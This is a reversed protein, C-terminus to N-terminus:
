WPDLLRRIERAPVGGVLTNARVDKAVVAGAAVVAGTGISVGALLVSGLGIWAGDGITVDRSYGEGARCERPGIAHSGTAITCRPGIAVREGIRISSEGSAILVTHHGIFSGDGIMVNPTVFRVSSVIKTGKGVTAGAKSVLYRKAAFARTAPFLRISNLLVRSWVARSATRLVDCTV